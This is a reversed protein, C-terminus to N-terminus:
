CKLKNIANNLPAAKFLITQGINQREKITIDSYVNLTSLTSQGIIMASKYYSEYMNNQAINITKFVNAYDHFDNM